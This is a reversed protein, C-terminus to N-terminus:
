NFRLDKDTLLLGCLDVGIYLIIVLVYAENMKHKNITHLAPACSFWDILIVVVATGKRRMEGSARLPAIPSAPMATDASAFLM